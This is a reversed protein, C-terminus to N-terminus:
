ASLEPKALVTLAWPDFGICGPLTGAPFAELYKPGFQLYEPEFQQTFLELEKPLFSPVGLEKPNWAALRRPKPMAPPQSAAGGTPAVVGDMDAMDMVPTDEKIEESMALKPLRVQAAAARPAM